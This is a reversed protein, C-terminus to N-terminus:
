LASSDDKVGKVCKVDRRVRCRDYQLSSCASGSRPDKLSRFCTTRWKSCNRANGGKMPFIGPRSVNLTECHLHSVIEPQPSLPAKAARVSKWNVEQLKDLRGGNSCPVNAVMRVSTSLPLVFNDTGSGGDMVPRSLKDMVYQSCSMQCNLETKWTHRMRVEGPRQLPM